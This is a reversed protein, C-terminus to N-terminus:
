PEFILPNPLFAVERGAGTKRPREKLAVSSDQTAADTEEIVFDRQVNTTKPAIRRSDHRLIGRVAHRYDVAMVKHVHQHIRWGYFWKVESYSHAPFSTGDGFIKLPVNLEILNNGSPELQPCIQGSTARVM